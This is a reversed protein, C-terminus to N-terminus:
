ASGICHHEAQANVARMWAPVPVRHAAIAGMEWGLRYPASRAPGPCPAGALGAEIGAELDASPQALRRADAVTWCEFRLTRDIEDAAPAPGVAESRLLM